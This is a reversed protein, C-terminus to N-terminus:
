GKVCIGYRESLDHLKINPAEKSYSFNPNPIMFDEGYNAKLHAVIDSPVQITLGMFAFQKFGNYPMVVEEVVWKNYDEGDPVHSFSYCYMQSDKFHFFFLDIPVGHFEYTQEFGYESGRNTTFERILKFGSSLLVSKIRDKDSYKAGLDIDFDHKIFGHDRYAGLLSGFEFWYQIKNQEFVNIITEVVGYAEKLFKRNKKKYSFNNYKRYLERFILIALKNKAFKYALKHIFNHVM